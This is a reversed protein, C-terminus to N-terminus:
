AACFLKIVISCLKKLYHGSAMSKTCKMETIQSVGHTFLNQLLTANGLVSYNRIVSGNSTSFLNLTFQTATNEFLPQFGQICVCVCVCPHVCIYISAHISLM